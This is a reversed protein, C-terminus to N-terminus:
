VFSGQLKWQFCHICHVSYGIYSKKFDSITTSIIDQSDKQIPRLNKLLNQNKEKEAPFTIMNCLRIDRM